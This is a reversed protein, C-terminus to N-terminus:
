PGCHVAKVHWRQLLEVDVFRRGHADGSVLQFPADPEGLDSVVALAGAFDHERTYDNLTILTPMGADRSARLGNESDEVAIAQRPTIKMHDLVRLYVDPAPKKVAVADGAAIYEFWDGHAETFHHKLLAYVNDPTTTTAIALRLGSARAECLLRKVGPRLPMAGGQLLQTYYRTKSEHL